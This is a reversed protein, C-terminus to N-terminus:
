VGIGAKALLSKILPNLQDGLEKVLLPEYTNLANFVYTEITGQAELKEGSLMGELLTLGQDIYQKVVKPGIFMSVVSGFPIASLALTM